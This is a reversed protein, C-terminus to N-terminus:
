VIKYEIRRDLNNTIESDSVMISDILAHHLLLKQFLLEELVQSFLEESGLENFQTEYQVINDQLESLFIVEGFKM